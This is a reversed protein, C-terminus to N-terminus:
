IGYTSGYIKDNLVIILGWMQPLSHHLDCGSYCIHPWRHLFRIGPSLVYHRLEEPRRYLASSCSGHLLLIFITTTAHKPLYFIGEHSLLSLVDPRLQFLLLNVRWSSVIVITMMCSQSCTILQCLGILETNTSFTPYPFGGEPHYHM